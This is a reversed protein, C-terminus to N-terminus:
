LLIISPVNFLHGPVFCGLVLERLPSSFLESSIAAAAAAKEGESQEYILAFSGILEQGGACGLLEGFVTTTLPLVDSVVLLFSSFFPKVWVRSVSSM